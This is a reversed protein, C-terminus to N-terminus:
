SRGDRAPVAWQRRWSQRALTRVPLLRCGAPLRSAAAAAVQAERFRAVLTSGSGSLRVWSAGASELIAGIEAIEPHLGFVTEQLDNWGCLRELEVRRPTPVRLLGGISPALPAETLDGLSKFIRGTAVQVPPLALWLTSRKPEVLPVLEDGRGFGLATGGMLFFPVDAGLSRAVPWLEEVTAPAGVLWRLGLLTTAANSSGGGLGGGLPIRKELRASVGLGPAWRERFAEMARVVLNEPGASLEAGVVELRVVGAPSVELGIRDHLDIAQFVTRLEHHGDPRRAVVQLHLNVKAYSRFTSSTM